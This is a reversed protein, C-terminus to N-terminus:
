PEVIGVGRKNNRNWNSWDKVEEALNIMTESDVLAHIITGTTRDLFIFKYPFNGGNVTFHAEEKETAIEIIM